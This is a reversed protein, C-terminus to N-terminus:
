GAKAGAHLGLRFGRWFEMKRGFGVLFNRINGFGFGYSRSSGSTASTCNQLTQVSSNLQARLSQLQTQNLRQGVGVAQGFVRLASGDFVLVDSRITAGSANSTIDSQLKANASNVESVNLTTNLENSVVPAATDIFNTRCQVTIGLEKLSNARIANMASANYSVNSYSWGFVTSQNVNANTTYSGQPGHLGLGINWNISAAGVAAIMVAVIALPLIIKTGM